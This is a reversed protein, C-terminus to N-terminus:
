GQSASVSSSQGCPPLAASANAVGTEPVDDPWPLALTHGFKPAVRDVSAYFAGWSDNAKALYVLGSLHDKLAPHGVDRSLRQHLRNKLRGKEDRPTLARLQELVGPALRMYVLDSTVRAMEM